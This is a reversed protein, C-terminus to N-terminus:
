LDTTSFDSILFFIQELLFDTFGSWFHSFVSAFYLSAFPILEIYMDQGPPILGISFNPRVPLWGVFEGTDINILWQITGNSSCQLYTWASFVVALAGSNIYKFGRRLKSVAVFNGIKEEYFKRIRISAFIALASAGLLVINHGEQNESLYYAAILIFATTFCCTHTTASSILSSNIQKWEKHLLTHALCFGLTACVGAMSMTYFQVAWGLEHGIANIHPHEAFKPSQRSAISMFVYLYEGAFTAGAILTLFCRMGKDMNQGWFIFGLLFIFLLMFFTLPPTFGTQYIAVFFIKIKEANKTFLFVLLPNVSSIAIATLIKIIKTLTKRNV